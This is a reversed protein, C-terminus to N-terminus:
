YLVVREGTVGQIQGMRPKAANPNIRNIYGSSLNHFQKIKGAQITKRRIYFLLKDTLIKTFQHQAVSPSM